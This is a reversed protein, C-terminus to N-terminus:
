GTGTIVADVSFSTFGSASSSVTLTLTAVTVQGPALTTGERNWGAVIPGNATTPNWNKVSLSLTVPTNGINKAYLTRSVIAGPSVTGWDVAGIRQTCASDSYIGLNASALVGSITVTESTVLVGSAILAGLLGIAVYAVAVVIAINKKNM